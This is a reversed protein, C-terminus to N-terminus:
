LTAGFALLTEGGAEWLVMRRRESGIAPCAQYAPGRVATGSLGQPIVCFEKEALNIAARYSPRDAEGSRSLVLSPRTQRGLEARGSNHTWGTQNEPEDSGTSRGRSVGAGARRGNSVAAGAMAPLNRNCTERLLSTFKQQMIAAQSLRSLSSFACFCFDAKM